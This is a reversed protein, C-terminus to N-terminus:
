ILADGPAISGAAVVEGYIGCDMHGFNKKLDEPITMDRAATDPDVNTAPCRVIRKVRRTPTPKAATPTEIQAAAYAERAERLARLREMNRRVAIAEREVDAM